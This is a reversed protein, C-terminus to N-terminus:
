IVSDRTTRETRRELADILREALEREGIGHLQDPLEPRSKAFVDANSLAARSLFTLMSLQLDAAAEADGIEFLKRYLGEARQARKLADTVSPLSLRDQWDARLTTWWDRREFLVAGYRVTWSLYDHGAALKQLVEDQEYLRLDISIPPRALIPQCEGYMLVLDLDDSHEVDRVSSGTAVIAKVAENETAGGVAECTWARAAEDPWRKVVDSLNGTTFVTSSVRESTLQQSM